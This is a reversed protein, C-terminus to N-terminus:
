SIRHLRFLPLQLTSADVYAGMRKEDRELNGALLEEPKVGQRYFPSLRSDRHIVPIPKGATKNIFHIELQHMDLTDEHLMSEQVHRAAYGQRCGVVIMLLQLVIANRWIMRRRMM